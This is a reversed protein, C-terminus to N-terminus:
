KGIAGLFTLGSPHHSYNSDSPLGFASTLMCFYLRIRKWKQMKVEASRHWLRRVRLRLRTLSGTM